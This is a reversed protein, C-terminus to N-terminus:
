WHAALATMLSDTEVGAALNRLQQQGQKVLAQQEPTADKDLAIGQVIHQAVFQYASTEKLHQYDRKFEAALNDLGLATALPEQLMLMLTLTLHDPEASQGFTHLGLPQIAAGLDELYDELERSFAAFDAHLNAVDWQLDQHINM